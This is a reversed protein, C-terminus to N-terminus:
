KGLMALRSQIDPHGPYEASLEELLQIADSNLENSIYFDVEELAEELALDTGQPEAAAPEPAPAPRPEPEAASEGAVAKEAERM